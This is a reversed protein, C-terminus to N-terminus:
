LPAGAARRLFRSLALPSVRRGADLPRFLSSHKGCAASRHAQGRGAAAGRGPSPFQGGQGMDGVGPDLDAKVHGAQGGGQHQGQHEQAVDLAQPMPVTTAAKVMPLPMAKAPSSYSLRNAKTEKM